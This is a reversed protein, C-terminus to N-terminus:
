EYIEYFEEQGDCDAFLEMETAGPVSGSVDLVTNVPVQAGDQVNCEITFTNIEAAKVAATDASLVAAAPLCVALTLFLTASKMSAYDKRKYLANLLITIPDSGM